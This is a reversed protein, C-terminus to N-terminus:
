FGFWNQKITEYQEKTIIGEEALRRMEAVALPIRRKGTPLQSQGRTIGACLGEIFLALRAEDSLKADLRFLVVDSNLAVFEYCHRRLRLALAMLGLAVVAPALLWLPAAPLFSYIAAPLTLLCIAVFWLKYRNDKVERPAPDVFTLDLVQEPLEKTRRHTSILLYHQNFRKFLTSTKARVNTQRLKSNVQWTERPPLEWGPRQLELNPAAWNDLDIIDSQSVAVTM